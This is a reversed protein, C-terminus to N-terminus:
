VIKLVEPGEMQLPHQPVPAAPKFATRAMEAQWAQGTRYPHDAAPHPEPAREAMHARSARAAATDTGLDTDRQILMAPDLQGDATFSMMLQPPGLPLAHGLDVQWFHWTKGYTDILKEADRNAAVLPVRPAVLQGSLVEYVHSHWYKKEEEPLEEFLRRSIIYEVGILRAGAKDSDYIVCQRVEETLHTCYHHARLQRTADHAYAHFACVHECVKSLPAFSQLAATGLELAHSTLGKAGGPVPPPGSPAPTGRSAETPPAQQQADAM